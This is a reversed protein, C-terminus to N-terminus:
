SPARSLPAARTHFRRMHYASQETLRGYTGSLPCARRVACGKDMCETGPGTDLFAHCSPADYGMASLAGVPCATLCPAKCTACPAAEPTEPLDIRLKLALAGRFSIM